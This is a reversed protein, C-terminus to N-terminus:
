RVVFLPDFSRISDPALRLPRVQMLALKYMRALFSRTKCFRQARDPGFLHSTTTITMKANLARQRVQRPGKRHLLQERQRSSRHSRPLALIFRFLRVSPATPPTSKARNIMTRTQLPDAHCLSSYLPFRVRRPRPTSRITPGM